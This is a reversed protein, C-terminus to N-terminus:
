CAQFSRIFDRQARTEPCNPGRATALTALAAEPALGASRLVCGGITGARGLGGRCHIVVNRGERAHQIIEAVLASVLSADNPISVDPIPFRRFTIGAAVTAQPLKNIHLLDLEHDEILSVLVATGHVTKLRALDVDLDRDWAGTAAAPDKKGPAFTLGVSGPWPTPLWAVELPHTISTRVGAM